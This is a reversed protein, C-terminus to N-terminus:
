IFHPSLYPLRTTKFNLLNRHPLNNDTVGSDWSRLQAKRNDEKNECLYVTPFGEM